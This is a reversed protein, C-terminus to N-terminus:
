WGEEADLQFGYLLGLDVDWGQEDERMAMLSYPWRIEVAAGVTPTEGLELDLTATAQGAGNSVLDAVLCALRQHGSPLTVSIMRGAGLVTTSAPLGALPLISADGAGARVTPNAATTQQREVARVPFTNAVGRLSLIFARWPLMAAEGIQPPFAGSVSWSAAGPLGIVKRRGTWGSRSVQAPDSKRWKAGRLPIPAPPTIIAM